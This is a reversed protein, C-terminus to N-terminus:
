RHYSSRVEFMASMSSLLEVGLSLVVSAKHIPKNFHMEVDDDIGLICMPKVGELVYGVEAEECLFRCFTNLVAGEQRTLELTHCASVCAM